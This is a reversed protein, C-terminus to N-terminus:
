TTQQKLPLYLEDHLLEDFGKIRVINFSGGIRDNLELVYDHLENECVTELICWYIGNKFKNTFDLQDIFLNKMISREAGRYGVVIIPHDRLLPLLIKLLSNELEHVDTEIVKDTYHEISGHLFILQPSVPATSFKILDSQTEIINIKQPLKFKDKAKDVCQDFNSTLTTEFYGREMLNVVGEYGRSPIIEPRLYKSLFEKRESPVNLIYKVVVPFLDELNKQNDFWTKQKFWNRCDSETLNQYGLDLDREKCYGLKLVELSLKAATPIGSKISAGAGLILVPSPKM